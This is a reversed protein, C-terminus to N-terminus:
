RNSGNKVKGMWAYSPEYGEEISRDIAVFTIIAGYIVKSLIDALTFLGQRWLVSYESMSFYPLIYAIPYLTWVTIFWWRVLQMKSRAKATLSPLAEGIIKWALVLIPVYFVWSIVFWLWLQFASTTEFLQGIYGTFIMLLGYIVFQKGRRVSEKSILGLVIVLQLLLLPVDIAWNLYRFGNSFIGNEPHFV